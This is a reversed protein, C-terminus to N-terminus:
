EGRGKGPFNSQRYALAGADSLYLSHPMDWEAVPEGEEKDGAYILVENVKWGGRHDKRIRPRTVVLHGDIIQRDVRGM